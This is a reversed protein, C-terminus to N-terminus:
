GFACDKTVGLYLFGDINKENRHLDGITVSVPPINNNETFLFLADFQSNKIRKKLVHIFAGVTLNSPVLYKFKDLEVADKGIPECIIAIRDPYKMKLVACEEKRKNEIKNKQYKFELRAPTDECSTFYSLLGSM